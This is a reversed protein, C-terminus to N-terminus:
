GHSIDKLLKLFLNKQPIGNSVAQAIIQDISIRTREEEELTKSQLQLIVLLKKRNQIYHLQEEAEQFYSLKQDQLLLIYHDGNSLSLFKDSHNIVLLPSYPSNPCTLEFVAKAIFDVQFLMKLDEMKSEGGRSLVEKM